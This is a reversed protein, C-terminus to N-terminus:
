GQGGPPRAGLFRRMTDLDIRQAVRRESALWEVMAMVVWVPQIAMSGAWMLGGAIEQDLRPGPGFPRGVSGYHAYLLYQSTYIFFGTVVMPVTVAFLAAVRVGHPVLHPAPSIPLLPYFMILSVMLYAPHEVYDHILPHNIAYEYFPTFHSGLLVGAFLPVGVVPRSLWRVVRSHLVPVLYDRRVGRSSVRLLLLAPAGLLLLPGVVVLLAIHQVMHMWFFTDDYAGVPGLIVVWLVVLGGLFCVTYRRPWPRGQHQASIASVGRLYAAGAVILATAPVPAFTWTSLMAVVPNVGRLTCGRLHSDSGRTAGLKGCRQVVPGGRM